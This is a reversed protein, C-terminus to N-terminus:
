ITIAQLEANTLRKPYYAIKKITGCRTGGSYDTSFSVSDCLTQGFTSALTSTTAAGNLTQSFGSVDVSVAIKMNSGVPNNFAQPNTQANAVSSSSNVFVDLWNPFSPGNNRYGGINVSNFYISAGTKFFRAVLSNGRGYTGGAIDGVFAGEHCITGASQNYWSSFNTGTMQASDAARTVQSAVTPIYSTAFAGAELQAGWLYIGSFGDGTYSTNTGTNVLWVYFQTAATIASASTISCRFWGNGVANITGSGGIVTGALLDFYGSAVSADASMWIKSREGAKAYITWTYATGVTLGSYSYYMVHTNSATTDEVLKDATLNGSPAVATNATISARSKTWPANDFEESRLLLNTRQEEIELGLSEGTIPNHEFRPVGAAATLLVPIYNTIPATTTPTYDTVTSRQELQAGWVYMQRSTGAYSSLGFSGITTSASLGINFEGTSPIVCTM